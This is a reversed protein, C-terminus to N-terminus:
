GVNAKVGMCKKSISIIVGHTSKRVLVKFYSVVKTQVAM